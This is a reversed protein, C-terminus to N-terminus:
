RPRKFCAVPHQGMTTVGVLEWGDEGLRTGERVVEEANAAYVCYCQWQQRGHRTTPTGMEMTPTCGSSLSFGISLVGAVVIRKM